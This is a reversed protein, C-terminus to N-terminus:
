KIKEYQGLAQQLKEQVAKQLAPPAIVRVDPGYRLIDMVLERQDAYPLRLEYTGDARTQGQQDHHWREEAVWRAIERSFILVAEQEPHGAFIGFSATFHDRLTEEDIEVCDVDQPVVESMRDLALTRLSRRTHCYVALYWNGRYYILRQPSVHRISVKDEGRGHYRMKLRKREMTTTAAIRFTLPCCVRIGVGIFHIRRTLEGSKVGRVNLIKEIRTRLPLLQTKLFGPDLKDILEHITLLSHLESVNFWLGPFQISEDDTKDLIYGQHKFDFRLPAGYENRLKTIYRKVTPISCELQAALSAISLAYRNNHFIRLLEHIRDIQAM